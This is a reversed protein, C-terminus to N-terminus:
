LSCSVDYLRIKDNLSIVLLREQYLRICSYYRWVVPLDKVLDAAFRGQRDWLTVSRTQKGGVEELHLVLLQDKDTLCISVPKSLRRGPVQLTITSRKSGESIDYVHICDSMYDCCYVCGNSDAALDCLDWCHTEIRPAKEVWHEDEQKEEEQEEQEQDEVEQEEQEKEEEKVNNKERLAVIWRESSNRLATIIKRSGSWTVHPEEGDGLEVHEPDHIHDHIKLCSKARSIEQYAMATHGTDKNIAAGWFAKDQDAFGQADDDRRSGDKTFHIMGDNVSFCVIDGSPIFDVSRIELGVDKQWLMQFFYLLYMLTHM